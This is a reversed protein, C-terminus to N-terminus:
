PTHGKGMLCQRLDALGRYVLNETRKVDWGLIRAAEPVSHGQLYLTVALRRERKTGLLCDRVAAGLERFSASSEPDGDARPEFRVIQSSDDTTEELSVEPRRKRRRIEDVLASHAVRHLYFSSLPRAGESKLEGTMVKTLAAQAIDQASDALWAPCQRRVARAMATALAAWRSDSSPDVVAVEDAVSAPAADRAPQPSRQEPMNVSRAPRVM